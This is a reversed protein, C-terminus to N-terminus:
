HLLDWFKAKKRVRSCTAQLPTAKYSMYVLFPDAHQLITKATQLAWGRSMQFYHRKFDYAVFITRQQRYIAWRSVGVQCLLTEATCLHDWKDHQYAIELYHSFYDITILYNRKAYKCIDAGIKQWPRLPLSVTVLPEKRLTPRTQMCESCKTVLEQIEKELGAMGPDGIQESGAPWPGHTDRARYTRAQLTVSAM